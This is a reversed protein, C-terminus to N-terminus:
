GTPPLSVHFEVPSVSVLAVSGGVRQLQDQAIWLGLGAHGVRTTFWPDFLAASMGAELADGDNFCRLQLEGIDQSVAITLRSADADKANIALEELVTQMVDHNVVFDSNESDVPLGVSRQVLGVVERLATTETSPTRPRAYYGVHRLLRQLAGLNEAIAGRGDSLANTVLRSARDATLALYDLSGLEQADEILELLAARQDLNLRSGRTISDLRGAGPRDRSAHRVSPFALHAALERVWRNADTLYQEAVSRQLPLPLRSAAELASYRERWSPDTRLAALRDALAPAGSSDPELSM